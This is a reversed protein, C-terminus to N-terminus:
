YFSSLSISCNMTMTTFWVSEFIYFFIISLIVDFLFVVIAPRITKVVPMARTANSLAVSVSNPANM